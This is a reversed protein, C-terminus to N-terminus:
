TGAVGGDVARVINQHTVDVVCCLISATVIIGGEVRQEVGLQAFGSRIDRNWSSCGICALVTGQPKGVLTHGEGDCGDQFTDIEVVAANLFCVISGKCSVAQM